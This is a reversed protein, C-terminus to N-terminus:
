KHPPFRVTEGPCEGGSLERRVSGRVSEGPCNGGPKSYSMKWPYNGGVVVMEIL